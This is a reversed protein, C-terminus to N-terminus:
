AYRRLCLCRRDRDMPSHPGSYTTSRKVNKGGARPCYLDMGEHKFQGSGAGNDRITFISAQKILGVVSDATPAGRNRIWIVCESALSLRIRIHVLHYPVASDNGFGSKYQGVDSPMSVAQGCRTFGRNPPNCICPLRLINNPAEATASANPLGSAKEGEFPTM